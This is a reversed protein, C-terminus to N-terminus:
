NWWIYKNIFEKPKSGTKDIISMRIGKNLYALERVRKQIISSSFTTSSFIEKSPLFNILTGTKHTKGIVKLPSYLREM